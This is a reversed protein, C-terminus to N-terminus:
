MGGQHFHANMYPVVYKTFHCKMDAQEGAEQGGKKTGGGEEEGDTQPFLLWFAKHNKAVLLPKPHSKGSLPVVNGFSLCFLLKFTLKSSRKNWPLKEQFSVHISLYFIPLFFSFILFHYIFIVLTQLFFLLGDLGSSKLICAGLTFCSGYVNLAFLFM